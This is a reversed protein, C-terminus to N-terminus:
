DYLRNGSSEHKDEKECTLEMIDCSLERLLNEASEGLVKITIDRAYENNSHQKITIDITNNLPSTHWREGWEIVVVYGSDIYNEFDLADAEVHSDLRYLDAHILPLEGSHEAVLVFTPSKIKSFGLAKGIGQTILTKGMGLGGHLLIVLGPYAQKGIFYGLSYTEEESFTVIDLKKTSRSLCHM